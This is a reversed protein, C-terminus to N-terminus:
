SPLGRCWWPFYQEAYTVGRWDPKDGPRSLSACLEKMVQVDFYRCEHRQSVARQLFDNRYPYSGILCGATANSRANFLRPNHCYHCFYMRAVGGRASASPVLIELRAPPEPAVALRSGRLSLLESNVIAGTGEDDYKFGCMGAGRRPLRRERRRARLCSRMRVGPKRPNARQLRGASKPCRKYNCHAQFCTKAGVNIGDGVSLFGSDNSHIGKGSADVYLDECCQLYALGPFRGLKLGHYEVLRLLYIESSVFVPRIRALERSGHIAELAEGSLVMEWRRMMVEADERNSLWHRDTVGGNDEGAPLWVRRPDLLELPPHPRLWEFELRSFLVRGYRYAQEAEQKKMMRLCRSQYHFERLTHAAPNGLAPSLMTPLWLRADEEGERLRGEGGGKVQARWAEGWGSAEVERRLAEASPQEEVAAATFPALAGVSALAAAVRSPWAAHSSPGALTGALFVHPSLPLLLAHRISAGNSALRFSLSGGFCAALTAPPPPPSPSPPPSPTPPTSSSSSSSSSPPSPSFLFSPLSSATRSTSALSSTLFPLSSRIAISTTPPLAVPRAADRTLTPFFSPPLVVILLFTASCGLWFARCSGRFDVEVLREKRSAGM